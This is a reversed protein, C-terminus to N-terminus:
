NTNSWFRKQWAVKKGIQKGQKWLNPSMGDAIQIASGVANKAEAHTMNKFEGLGDIAFDLGKISPGYDMRRANKYFGQM